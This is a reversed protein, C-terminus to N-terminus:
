VPLLINMLIPYLVFVENIVTQSIVNNNTYCYKILKDFKFLIIMGDGNKESMNYDRASYQGIIAIVQIGDIMEHLVKPEYYLDAEFLAEEYEYEGQATM